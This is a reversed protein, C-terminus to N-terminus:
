LDPRRRISVISCTTGTSRVAPEAPIRRCATSIKSRLGTTAGRFRSRWPNASRSRIRATSASRTSRGHLDVRTDVPEDDDSTSGDAFAQDSHRHASRSELIRIALRSSPSAAAIGRRARPSVTTRSWGARGARCGSLQTAQQVYAHHHRHMERHARSERAGARHLALFPYPQTTANGTM